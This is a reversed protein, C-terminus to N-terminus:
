RKADLSETMKPETQQQLNLWKNEFSQPTLYKLSKHPKEQNYLQVARDVKKQLEEYTRIKWHKLYNNKIVGNFRESTGNEWAYEGMSNLFGYKATIELFSKAYFQSGGDSHFIINSTLQGGRVKIAMRLSVISTQETSLSRSVSYGIILRSYCDIIFTLYYFHGGAEYYTIDSSWVQNPRTLIVDKLLNEFRIVGSSDTTTPLRKVAGCQYGHSWCLWEFADRGISLPRLKYYMARCSMTPHDARIQAVLHM